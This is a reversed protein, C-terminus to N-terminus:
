ELGLLELSNRQFIGEIVDDPIRPLNTGEVQHNLRRIKEMGEQPTWIPYDSGFLLKDAVGWEIMTVLAEWGQWPRHWVGSVDAFVNPQKRVVVACERQFPHGMHAIVIKLEPFARAVTDYSLPLSYELM